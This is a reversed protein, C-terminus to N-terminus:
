IHIMTEIIQSQKYDSINIRYGLIRGPPSALHHEAISFNHSSNQELGNFAEKSCVRLCLAVQLPAIFVAYSTAAM